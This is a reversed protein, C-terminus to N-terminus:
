KQGYYAGSGHKRYYHKDLLSKSIQETKGLLVTFFAMKSIEELAVANYVANDADKGWCFPGHSNVLVSPVTLPNVSGLTEVIVKGTNMEYDTSIEADSLLRSCPVEGYYHDAHTTGFAPISQGSQAWSTAYSSHTHVVGGVSEWTKYLLLHTAADTSPKYKGEVVKGDPDLVVMDSAKMTDYSVGSPKIVVLGTESDRGSVNGWTHIVLGHKVLDLNAKFVNDKLRELMKKVKTV